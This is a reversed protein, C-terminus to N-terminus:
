DRLKAAFDAALRELVGAKAAEVRADTLTDVADQWVLGLAVSKKGSEMGQGRYVDFVVVERLLDDSASKVCDILRGVAVDEDVILALDRRVRPFKSVARFRPVDRELLPGQELEFLFIRQEFGVTKELQPHLMGLWGVTLGSLSIRAAQGPHLAPHAAPSFSLRDARGTLRAIAEIDAKLDFFDVMRPSEAWQEDCVPGTVLGSLCKTQSVGDSHTTFRLGAEFLRIRNQQRYANKLAADLLGSWLTTRMAAMEASIPNKLLLRPTGPDLLELTHEDVFSYTIVEQYGRDALLDKARDLSLVTESAPRMAAPVTPHKRPLRDYGYIRGLEEIVDVEIALDFRYSPPVVKWGDPVPEPNLDLRALIREVRPTEIRVGLLRAVRESRLLIPDRKPLHEGSCAEVVPGAKGGAISLILGTAREMARAQLQPDVGREFRHSSDTALGYRRAKGAISEPAFFACELFIDATTESVASDKGGMIGALALAKRQDAIVLVDRDLAVEQDNLLSIKEGAMANRVRIGGALKDADFAHLPQGLELL